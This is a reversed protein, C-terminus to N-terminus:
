LPINLIVTTGNNFSSDITFNGKISEMRKEINSLGFGFKTENIDFGKGNDELMVNLVNDDESFQIILESAKAHKITNTLLEQVIRFVQIEINSKIRQEVNINEVVVHLKESSSLQNAIVVMSPILGKSILVGSYKNHAIKRVETYTEEALTTLKSILESKNEDHSSTIDNIYLKMTAIRSGLNDHLDDAIRSREKEQAEIIADIGNLEQRKLRDLLQQRIRKQKRRNRRILFYVLIYSVWLASFSAIFMNQNRIRQNDVDLNEAELALIENEKKETEYKTQIENFNKQNEISLISDNLKRSQQAYDLALKYNNLGTYCKQIQEYAFVLQKGKAIEAAKQYHGLATRYDKGKLSLYGLNGYVVEVGTQMNLEQKLALTKELYDKAKEEDSDLYASGLNNYIISLSPKNNTNLALKEAQLNYLIAKTTDGLRLHQAALNPLTILQFQTHELETFIKLARENYEVASSYNELEAFATSMNTYCKAMNLKDGSQEFHIVSETLTKITENYQGQRLQIAGIGINIIAVKNEDGMKILYRKAERFYHQASDLRGTFFFLRGLQNSAEAMLSDNKIYLANRAFQKGNEFNISEHLKALKLNILAKEHPTHGNLLELKLSDVENGRTTLLLFLLTITTLHKKM